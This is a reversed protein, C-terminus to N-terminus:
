LIDEVHLGISVAPKVSVRHREIATVTDKYTNDDRRRTKEKRNEKM